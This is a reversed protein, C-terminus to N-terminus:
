YATGFSKAGHIVSLFLDAIIYKVWIEDVM